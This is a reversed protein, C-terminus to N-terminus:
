ESVAADTGREAQAGLVQTARVEFLSFIVPEIEDKSTCVLSRYLRIYLNDVACSSSARHLVVICAVCVCIRALTCSLTERSEPGSCAQEM